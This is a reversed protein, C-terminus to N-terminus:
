MYALITIEDLIELECFEQRLWGLAGGTIPGPSFSQVIMNGTASASRSLATYYSQHSTCNM